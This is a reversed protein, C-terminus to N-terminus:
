SLGYKIVKEMKEKIFKRARFLNVKVQNMDLGMIKEIEKYSMGEFDRLRVVEKQKDNLMDVISGVHGLLEKNELIESPDESESNLHFQDEISGNNFSKNKM